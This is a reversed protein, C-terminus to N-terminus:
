HGIAEVVLWLLYRNVGRRYAGPPVYGAPLITM